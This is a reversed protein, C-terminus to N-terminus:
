HQSPALRPGTPGTASGTSAHSRNRQDLVKRADYQPNQVVHSLKLVSMTKFQLNYKKNWLKYFSILNSTLYKQLSFYDKNGDM